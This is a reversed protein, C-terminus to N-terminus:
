SGDVGQSRARVWDVGAHRVQDGEQFAALLKIINEHDLRAHLWVERFIQFKYLDIVADLCYVKLVCPLGTRRCQARYVVSSYGKYLKEVMAFDQLRWREREMPAPLERSKALLTPAPPPPPLACQRAAQLLVPLAPYVIMPLPRGGPEGGGMITGGAERRSGGGGRSGDSECRTIRAPSRLSPSPAAVAAALAASAATPVCAQASRTTEDVPGVGGALPGLAPGASPDGSGDYSVAPRPTSTPPPPSATAAAGAARGAAGGSSPLPSGDDSLNIRLGAAARHRKLPSSLEAAASSIPRGMCDTGGGAEAATVVSSEPEAPQEPLATSAAM